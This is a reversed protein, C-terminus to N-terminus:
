PNFSNEATWSNSFLATALRGFAALTGWIAALRLGNLATILRPVHSNQANANVEM